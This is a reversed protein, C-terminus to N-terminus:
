GTISQMAEITKPELGLLDLLATEVPLSQNRSMLQVLHRYRRATQYVDQLRGEKTARRVAEFIKELDRRRDTAPPRHPM